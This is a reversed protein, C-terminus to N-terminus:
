LQNAVSIATTSPDMSARYAAIPNASATPRGYGYHGNGSNGLGTNVNSVSSTRNFCSMAQTLPSVTNSLSPWFSKAGLPNPVKTAWNNYSYGAYLAATEDFPSQMLGNLSASFSNKLDNPISRERKRWKARRNKFWVRVRPETLSTWLAIQERLAMDPYRNQTFHNELEQLQTSTFHTRQRRQRNKQKSDDDIGDNEDDATGSQSPKEPSTSHTSEAKIKKCDDMSSSCSSVSQHCVSANSPSRSDMHPSYKSVPSGGSLTPSPAQHFHGGHHPHGYFPHHHPHPHHHSTPSTATTPMSSFLSSVHHHAGSYVPHPVPQGTTLSRPHTQSPSSAQHLSAAQMASLQHHHHLHTHPHHVHSSTILNNNNTNTNNVSNVNNPTTNNTHTNQPSSNSTAVDNPNLPSDGALLLSSQPNSQDALLLMSSLSNHISSSQHALDQLCLPDSSVSDM